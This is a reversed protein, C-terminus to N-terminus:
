CEVWQTAEEEAIAIDDCPEITEMMRYWKTGSPINNLMENLQHDKQSWPQPLQARFADRARIITEHVVISFLPDLVCTLHYNYGPAPSIFEEV